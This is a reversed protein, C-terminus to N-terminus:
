LLFDRGGSINDLHAPTQICPVLETGRKGCYGDTDKIEKRTFRGRLYGFHLESEIEYLDETYLQLENYGLRAFIDIYKKLFAINPVANRSCDLMLSLTEYSKM